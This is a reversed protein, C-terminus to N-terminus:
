IPLMKRILLKKDIQDIKTEPGGIALPPLLEGLVKPVNKLSVALLLCTGLANNTSRSGDTTPLLIVFVVFDFSILLRFKVDGM